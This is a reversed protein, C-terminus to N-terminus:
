AAITFDKDLRSPDTIDLLGVVFFMSCGSTGVVIKKQANFLTPDGAEDVFYNCTSPPLTEDDTM